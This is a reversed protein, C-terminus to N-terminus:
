EIALKEVLSLSSEGPGTGSVLYLGGYTSILAGWARGGLSSALQTWQGTAPDWRESTSLPAYSEMQAPLGGSIVVRGDPLLAAQAVLRPFVLAGSPVFRGERARYVESTGAALGDGGALLIDGNPLAVTVHQIRAMIMQPGQSWKDTSPDYIFTTDTAGGDTDIGGMVIVRGDRLLAASHQTRQRPMPAARQWTDKMPDYIDVSKLLASNRNGGIVAIRGDKLVAAAHDARPEPMPAGGSWERKTISYVEVRDVTGWSKGLWETGGMAVVHEHTDISLSQHLRGLLTQPLTRVAGTVVDILESKTNTVQPDARDLGGVVLIENTPLGIVQAFARGQHLDLYPFWGATQPAPRAASSQVLAAILILPALVGVLGSAARKM